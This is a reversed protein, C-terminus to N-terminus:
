EVKFYLVLYLTDTVPNVQETARDFGIDVLYRGLTETEELLARDANVKMQGSVPAGQTDDAAVITLNLPEAGAPLQALPMAQWTSGEDDVTIALAYAGGRRAERAVRPYKVQEYVTKILHRQPSGDAPAGRLVIPTETAQGALYTVPLILTFCLVLSRITRTFAPTFNMTHQQNNM